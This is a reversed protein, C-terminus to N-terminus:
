EPDIAKELGYKNILNKKEVVRKARDDYAIMYKGDKREYVFIIGGNKLSYRWGYQVKDTTKVRSPASEL